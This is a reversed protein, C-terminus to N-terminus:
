GAFKVKGSERGTHWTGGAGVWVGAYRGNGTQTQAHFGSPFVEADPPSRSSSPEALEGHVPSFSTQRCCRAGAEHGRSRFTEPQHAHLRGRHAHALFPSWRLSCPFYRPKPPWCWTVADRSPLLRAMRRQNHAGRHGAPQDLAEQKGSDWEQPTTISPLPGGREACFVGTM